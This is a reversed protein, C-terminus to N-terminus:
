GYWLIIAIFFVEQVYKVNLLSVAPPWTLLEVPLM